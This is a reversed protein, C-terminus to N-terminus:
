FVRNKLGTFKWATFYNRERDMMKFGECLNYADQMLILYQAIEWNAKQSVARGKQVRIYEWESWESGVSRM